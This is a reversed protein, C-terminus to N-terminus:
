NRIPPLKIFSSCPVNFCPAFGSFISFFIIPFGKGSIVDFDRAPLTTVKGFITSPFTVSMQMAKTRLAWLM